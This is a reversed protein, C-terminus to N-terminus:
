LTKEEVDEKESSVTTSIPYFHCAEVYPRNRFLEINSNNPLIRSNLNFIDMLEKEEEEFDANDIIFKKGNDDYLAYKSGQVLPSGSPSKPSKESPESIKSQLTFPSIKKLSSTHEMGSLFANTNQRNDFISNDSKMLGEMTTEFEVTKINDTSKIDTIKSCKETTEESQAIALSIDMKQDSSQVERKFNRTKLKLLEIFVIYPFLHFCYQLNFHGCIEFLCWLLHLLVFTSILIVKSM